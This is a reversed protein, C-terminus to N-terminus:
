PCPIEFFGEQWWNQYIETTWTALGILQLFLGIILFAGYIILLGFAVSTFLRKARSIMEPSGEGPSAFAIIYFFGGIAIMLAALVPVIMFLLRDIWRDIMVFFHCLQCPESEDIDDTTPDDCSRGCPVIGGSKEEATLGPCWEEEAMVLNPILFLFLFGFLIILSLKRM